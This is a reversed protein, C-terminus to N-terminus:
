SKEEKIFCILVSNVARIDAGRNILMECVRIKLEEEEKSISCAYHLPTM